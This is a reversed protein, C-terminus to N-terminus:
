TSDWNKLGRVYVCEDYSIAMEKPNIVRDTIKAGSNRIITLPLTEDGEGMKHNAISALNDAIAQFTVKLPNGDLDKTARRDLVPEIGSCAIAVGVTGIRAPM